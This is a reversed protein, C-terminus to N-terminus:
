VLLYYVVVLNFVIADIRDVRILNIAIAIPDSIDTIRAVIRIVISISHGVYPVVADVPGVRVLSVEIAIADSIGTFGVVAPM